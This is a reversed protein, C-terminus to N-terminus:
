FFSLLSLFLFFFFHEFDPGGGPTNYQETVCACLQRYITELQESIHVRLAFM